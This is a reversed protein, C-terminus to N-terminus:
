MFGMCDRIYCISFTCRSYVGRRGQSCCRFGYRSWARGSEASQAHATWIHRAITTGRVRHSRFKSSSLRLCTPGWSPIMRSKDRLYSLNSGQVSEQSGARLGDLPHRYVLAAHVSQEGVASRSRTPPRSRSRAHKRPKKSQMDPDALVHM